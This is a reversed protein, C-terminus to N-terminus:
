GGVVLGTGKAGQPVGQLPSLSYTPNRNYGKKRERGREGRRREGGRGEM